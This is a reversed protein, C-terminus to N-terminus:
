FSTVTTGGPSWFHLKLESRALSVFNQDVSLNAETFLFALICFELFAIRKKVPKQLKRLITTFGLANKFSAFFNTKRKRLNVM